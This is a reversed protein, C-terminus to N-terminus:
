CRVFVRCLRPRKVGISLRMTEYELLYCNRVQGLVRFCIYTEVGLYVCLWPRNSRLARSGIVPRM